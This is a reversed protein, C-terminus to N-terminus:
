RGAGPTGDGTEMGKVAPVAPLPGLSDFHKKWLICEEAFSAAKEWPTGAKESKIKTLIELAKDPAGTRELCLAERFLAATDAPNLELLKRYLALAEVFKGKRFLADAPIRPNVKVKYAPVPKREPPPLTKEVAKKSPVKAPGEAEPPAPKPKVKAPLFRPKRRFTRAPVREAQVKLDKWRERLAALRDLEKAYRARLVAPDEEGPPALARLFAPDVSLGLDIRIRAEEIRRMREALEKLRANLAPLGMGPSVGSPPNGQGAVLCAPLLVFIFLAGKM